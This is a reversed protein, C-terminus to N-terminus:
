GNEFYARIDEFARDVRRATLRRLVLGPLYVSSVTQVLSVCGDPSCGWTGSATVPGDSKFDVTATHPQVSVRVTKGLVAYATDIWGGDRPAYETYRRIDRFHRAGDRSTMLRVFAEPTAGPVVSNHTTTNGTM